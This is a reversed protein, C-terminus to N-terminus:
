KNKIAEGHLKMIRQSINFPNPINKILIQDHPGATQIEITGYNFLNSMLGKMHSTSEELENLNCQLIKRNFIGKQNVVILHKETVVILSYYFKVWEIFAIDLWLLYYVCSILIIVQTREVTSLWVPIIIFPLLFAVILFILNDLFSVPHPRMFILVKERIEEGPIPFYYDRM